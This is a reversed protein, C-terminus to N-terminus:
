PLIANRARLSHGLRSCQYAHESCDLRLIQQECRHICDMNHVDQRWRVVHIHPFTPEWEIRFQQGHYLVQGLKPSILKSSYTGQANLKAPAFAFAVLFLLVVFGRIKM